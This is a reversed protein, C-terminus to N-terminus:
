IISQVSEETNIIKAEIDGRLSFKCKSLLIKKLRNRTHKQGETDSFPNVTQNLRKSLILHRCSM